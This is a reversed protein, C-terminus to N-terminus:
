GLFPQQDIPDWVSVFFWIIWPHHSGKLYLHLSSEMRTALPLHFSQILLPHKCTVPRMTCDPISVCYKTQNMYILKLCKSVLKSSTSTCGHNTRTSILFFTKCSTNGCSTCGSLLVAWRENVVLLSTIVIGLTYNLQM